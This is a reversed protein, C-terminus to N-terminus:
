NKGKVYLLDTKGPCVYSGNVLHGNVLHIDEFTIGYPGTPKLLYTKAQYFRFGCLIIIMTALATIGTILKTGRNKM